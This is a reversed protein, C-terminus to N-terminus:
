KPDEASMEVVNKWDGNRDKKWITVARGTTTVPNGVSDIFTMTNKEIMYAMDGSESVSVSVPEWSIRFGPIESMGIIMQRLEQKGTLTPQGSSIFVADDAWYSLTKEIDDTAATQSWERSLQMLEQGEKEPDVKEQSCSVSLMLACLLLLRKM